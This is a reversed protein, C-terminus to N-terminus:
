ILWKPYRDCWQLEQFFTLLRLANPRPFRPRGLNLGTPYYISGKGSETSALGSVGTYSVPTYEHIFTYIGTWIRIVRLFTTTAQLEFDLISLLNSVNKWKQFEKKSITSAGAFSKKQYKGQQIPLM